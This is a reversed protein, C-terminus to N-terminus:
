VAWKGDTTLAAASTYFSANGSVSFESQQYGVTGLDFGNLNPPKPVGGGGTIAAVTTSAAAASASGASVVTTLGTTLLSAAVLAVLPQSVSGRRLVLGGERCGTSGSMLSGRGVPQSRLVM